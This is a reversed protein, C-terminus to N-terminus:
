ATKIYLEGKENEALEPRMRLAVVNPIAHLGHRCGYGGCDTVPDYPESKGSFKGQSKDTYGGYADAKSGFAAVEWDLFVKGNRVKCFPRSGDILGGQYLYAKLGLREAAVAQLQRDNQNYSDYAERYLQSVLGNDSATGIALKELGARFELLGAKYSDLGIGNRQASYAYGLLARKVTTDEVLTSLWGGPIPQGAATVGLRQELFSALPARLQEYGAVDLAQFYGVSLAPLTLLSQAYYVALPLAVTAQYDALLPVLATPDDYIAELKSLLGELLIRQSEAVHGQLQQQLEAIAATRQAALQEITM